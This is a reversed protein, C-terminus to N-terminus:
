TDPSVSDEHIISKGLMQATQMGMSPAKQLYGPQSFGWLRYKEWADPSDTDGYVSSKALMRASQLGM